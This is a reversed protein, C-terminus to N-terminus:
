VFTCNRREGFPLAVGVVCPANVTGAPGKAASVEGVRPANSAPVNTRPACAGCSTCTRTPLPIGEPPADGGFSSPGCYMLPVTALDQYVTAIGRDLADRPSSFHVPRGDLIMEGSDPKHVGSLIKILTSKGAGNDGLLCCVEGARVSMTIGQLAIVSGFHKSVDRLEIIPAADVTM